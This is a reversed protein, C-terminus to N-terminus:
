RYIRVQKLHIVGYRLRGWEFKASTAAIWAYRMRIIQNIKCVLVSLIIEIIQRKIQIVGQLSQKAKNCAHAEM